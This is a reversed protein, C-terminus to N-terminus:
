KLGNPTLKARLQQVIRDETLSFLDELATTNRVSNGVYFTYKGKELVYASKAVKGLDDYSAM